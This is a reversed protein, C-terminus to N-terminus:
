EIVSNLEVCLERVRHFSSFVGSEVNSCIFGLFDCSGEGSM